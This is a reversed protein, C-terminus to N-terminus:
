SRQEKPISQLRNLEREALEEVIAYVPKDLLASIQKLLNKARSTASVSTLPHKRKTSM